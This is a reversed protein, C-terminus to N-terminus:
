EDCATCKSNRSKNWSQIILHVFYSLSPISFFTVIAVILIIKQIRRTRQSVIKM